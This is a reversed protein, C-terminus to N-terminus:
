RSQLSGTLCPLGVRMVPLEERAERMQERSPSAPAGTVTTDNGPRLAAPPRGCPRGQPHLSFDGLERLLVSAVSRSAPM